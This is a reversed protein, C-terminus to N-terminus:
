MNKRNAERLRLSLAKMIGFSIQPFATVLTRLKAKGLTLLRCDDIVHVTASRPQSDLLHMEGFCEGPGLEAVFSPQEGEDEIAIGVRGTEIIYMEEGYEGKIFVRDGRLLHEDELAAAVEKLDEVSVESFLPSQKLLKIRDYINGM